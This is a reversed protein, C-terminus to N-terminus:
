AVNEKVMGTLLNRKIPFSLVDIDYSVKGMADRIPSSATGTSNKVKFLRLNELILTVYKDKCKTRSAEDLKKVPLTQCFIM